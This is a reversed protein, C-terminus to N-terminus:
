RWVMDPEGDVSGTSLYMDCRRRLTGNGLGPPGQIRTGSGAKFQGM